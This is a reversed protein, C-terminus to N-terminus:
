DLLTEKAANIRAALWDSGGRDPHMKQMLKRHADIIEDRSAGENLGLVALAEERSLDPHSRNYQKGQKTSNTRNTTEKRHWLRILLPFLRLLWPFLKQVFPLILAILAGIWHLKGTITLYLLALTTTLVLIKILARRAKEAPQRRYWVWSGALILAILFLGVPNM